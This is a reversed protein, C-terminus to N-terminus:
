ARIRSSIPFLLCKFLFLDPESKWSQDKRNYSKKSKHVKTKSTWGVSVTLEAERSGKRSAKVYDAVKGKKKM